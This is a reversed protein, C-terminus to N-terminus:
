SSGLWSETEERVLRDALNFVPIDHHDAIRIAQQTGGRGMHWCVVFKTPTKLDRGLIQHSNRAHLSRAGNGMVGWNPHFEKAIEYAASTPRTQVHAMPHLHAAKEFNAWPLYIEAADAAGIEFAQDAGPAHGTRLVFGEGRLRAAIKVMLALVEPPTQRSGIGAYTPDSM